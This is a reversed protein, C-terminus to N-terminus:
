GCERAVGLVWADEGRAGVLSLGVPVGGVDALPMSVQPLRAVGAIATLSITRSYYDGHRDHSATGKIPALIPGTPLCLLDRGGLAGNLTRSLQERMRVAEGVRSRDLQQILEFGAAAAPGFRPKTAAVWAGLCSDVEAGRLERFVDLWLTLNGTEANGCLEGLSTERVRTGFKARLLNVAEELAQRVDPDALAIAERILHIAGPPEADDAPVVGLLVGMARQLVESTRAMVGVTDFTPSFPMVGAVSVAGRTPRMGWLGCNSAPIRVSGGTDTGLAFDVLGQAVASASGSSSGGSVREPASPNLPTGYFYNEGLLSFAVEDCVTKGVCTAGAALVQEVCVASVRAAPHTALWDPNGCGTRWGAVDILDKVAFRLGNLAGAGTAPLTFEEIFAATSPCPLPPMDSIAFRLSLCAGEWASGVACVGAM